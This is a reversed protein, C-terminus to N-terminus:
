KKESGLVADRTALGVAVTFAPAVDQLRESSMQKSSVGIGAFPDAVTTTIGLDSQIFQDLNPLRASGGCLIIQDVTDNPYRSRFYDISRRVETLLEGLVPLIADFVERRRRARPDDPAPVPASASPAAGFDGAPPPAFPNDAPSAFPNDMAAGPMGAGPPPPTDDLDFVAAGGPAPGTGGLPPTDDLDFTPPGAAPPPPTDDAMGFVPPTAESSPSAFPTNMPVDSFDFPTRGMAGEDPADEGLGFDGSQGGAGILDMFVAANERKEEEADTMSLGFHDAIARTLNDGALPVSRPFRLIGSKFIGIDTNSAGINVLVVNKDAMGSRPLNILARGVALPEVDVAVPNLGAAQLTQIHQAVMDRQAVALLVEMNPNAPDPPTGDDIPQYAMEVDNAAFPIHREVEWKMTEALESPSMRPVEIVRVVVSAAGAAASVSRKAGVGSKSLLTKIAAGLAKPDAVIGGQVAGEPTNEIGLASIQLNNGAGRAEVVKITQSGIDLGVFAGGSPRAM